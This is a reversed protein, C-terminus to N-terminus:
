ERYQILIATANDQSKVSQSWAMNVLRKVSVYMDIQNDILMAKIQRNTLSKYIGDSCLLIQDGDKLMMPKDNKGIKKLNAIGIYSTLAKAQKGKSKLEYVQKTIKGETLEDKLLEQYNHDRTIPILKEDRLLYIRSDGVSIWYLKNGAILTSVMTTGSKLLCNNEGKLSAILQNVHIAERELFETEKGLEIDTKQYDYIMNQVTQSSALEGGQMGGMGDCVVALLQNDKEVIGGYDQQSERDGCISYGESWIHFHTVEATEKNRRWCIINDTQM